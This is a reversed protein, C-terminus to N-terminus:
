AEGPQAQTSAGKYGLSGRTAFLIVVALLGYLMAYAPIRNLYAPAMRLSLSSTTDEAEHLLMMLLLSGGTSNYVWTLLVSIGIGTLLYLGFNFHAQGLERVFFLPIHWCAHAVGILLAAGLPGFRPLMRPLAFGRWGPEEGLGGGIIVQPVLDLPYFTLLLPWKAALSALPIAGMWASLLLFGAPVLFIALLYWPLGVRWQICRRLLRRVGAGGELVRTMILAAVGPGFGGLIVFPVAPVHFPLVGLGDQSFMLLPVWLVWPIAYALLFFGALPHGRLWGVLSTDNNAAVPQDTM